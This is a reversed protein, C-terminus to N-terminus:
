WRTPILVGAKELISAIQVLLSKMGKSSDDMILKSLDNAKKQINKKLLDPANPAAALLLSHMKHAKRMVSAKSEGAM